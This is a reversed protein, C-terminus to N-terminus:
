HGLGNLNRNFSQLKELHKIHHADTGVLSYLKNKLLAEALQQTPKGYYGTLSLANLQLMCGSHKLDKFKDLRATQLYGYREPHAIVPQYGKIQLKFLTNTVGPSANLTSQEVLVWNKKICLIEGKDLHDNFGEDLMYEAAAELILNIGAKQAAIKVEELRVRIIEPTNPYLDCMIHPTAVLKQYGLGEFHRLMELTDSMTKAGDDIGPLWHAHYDTKLQEGISQQSTKLRNFPWIDINLSSIM